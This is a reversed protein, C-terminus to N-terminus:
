EASVYRISIAQIGIAGTYSGASVDRRISIGLLSGPQPSSGGQELPTLSSYPTPNMQSNLLNQGGASTTTGIDHFGEGVAWMDAFFDWDITGTTWGAADYLIMSISLSSTDGNWDGPMVVRWNSVGDGAYAYSAHPTDSYGTATNVETCHVGDVDVTGDYFRSVTRYRPSDERVLSILEALTLTEPANSGLSFPFRMTAKQGSSLTGVLDPLNGGLQLQLTPNGAIGNGNSVAIGKTSAGEIQRATVTGNTTQALLGNGTAVIDDANLYAATTLADRYAEQAIMVVRDLATELEEPPFKGSTVLDLNQVKATERRIRITTMGVIGPDTPVTVTGGKLRGGSDYDPNLTWTDVEVVAGLSNDFLQVRIDDVDNYRFTFNFDVPFTSGLAYYIESSETDIM